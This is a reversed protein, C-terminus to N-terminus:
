QDDEEDSAVFQLNDFQRDETLELDFSLVSIDVRMRPTYCLQPQKDPSAPSNDYIEIIDEKSEELLKRNKMFKSDNSKCVKVLQPRHIQSEFINERGSEEESDSDSSKGIKEQCRESSEEDSTDPNSKSEEKPNKQELRKNKVQEYNNKFVASDKTNLMLANNSNVGMSCYPEEFLSDSDQSVTLNIKESCNSKHLFPHKPLDDHSIRKSPDYKLCKDLLDVCQLSLKINKPIGYDGKSLRNNLHRKNIGKFPVFSVLLEYIITGLSWIDAKSNYSSSHIVEPAVTSPTGCCTKALGNGKVSRAFGLDGIIIEVEEDEYNFNKIYEDSVLKSGDYEPFNVLINELKLDRHIIEKENLYCLGSALQKVIERVFDESLRGGRVELVRRLDGGNCFEVFLNMASETQCVDLLRIVNLHDIGRLIKVERAWRSLLDGSAIGKYGAGQIRKCAVQRGERQRHVFVDSLGEQKVVTCYYVSAYAGEGIPKKALEFTNNIRKM